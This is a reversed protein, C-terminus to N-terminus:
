LRYLQGGDIRVRDGVRLDVTDRFDFSRLGGRELQVTVRVGGHDRRANKEVENGILAGGVAGAVTGVNKGSNSNGFQRGIVAGIIGGAVAGAGQPQEAPIGIPDISRVQGYAVGSHSGGYVPASRPAPSACAGLLALCVAPILVRVTRLM